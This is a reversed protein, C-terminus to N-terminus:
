GRRLGLRRFGLRDLSAALWGRAAAVTPPAVAPAIAERLSALLRQGVHRAAALEERLGDLQGHLTDVQGRFGDIERSMEVMREQEESRPPRAPAIARGEEKGYLLYHVLPNWQAEAVDPHATLYEAVSFWACPDRHEKWGFTCFHQLLGIDQLEDRSPSEGLAALYYATDFHRRIVAMDHRIAEVVPDVAVDPENTNAPEGNGGGAPEADAIMGPSPASEVPEAPQIPAPAAADAAATGPRMVIAVRLAVLPADPHPALCPEGNKCPGVTDGTGFSGEYVVDFRDLVAPALRVAFGTLALGRGRTGALRADSVWPTQVGDRFIARYEVDGPGIQGTPGPKGTPSIAFGEIPLHRGPDGAWDRGLFLRDGLRAIHLTIAADVANETADFWRNRPPSKAAPWLRVVEISPWPDHAAGGYVTVALTSSGEGVRVLATGGEADLWGPASGDATSIDVAASNAGPWPTIRTAPFLLGSAARKTKASGGVTLAYLGEDLAVLRARTDADIAEASVLPGIGSKRLAAPKEVTRFGADAAGIVQHALHTDM